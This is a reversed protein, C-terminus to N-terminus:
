VKGKLLDRKDKTLMNKKGRSWKGCKKCSYRQYRGTTTMAFGRREFHSSGCNCTVVDSEGTYLNFDIATQDWPSLVHYLEELSVVDMKNYAEMEKWAEINGALCEKWLSFGVFKKHESKKYKTCLKDTMWALKNSTFAFNRKAILLTDIKKYPSPPKMGHFVFRANIRKVDFSNSNQGIVIDAEDLLKWLEGVIVKDNEIDKAKRQDMYMVKRHPGYVTKKDESELWKASWSLIHTENKIQELGVNQDFLGWTYSILPATELDFLLIKPGNFEKKNSM